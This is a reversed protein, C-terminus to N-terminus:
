FCRRSRYYGCDKSRWFYTCPHSRKFESGFSGRQGSYRYCKKSRFFTSRYDKPHKPHKNKTPASQVLTNEKTKVPDPRLGILRIIMLIVFVVIAILPYILVSSRESKYGKIFIPIAIMIYVLQFLELFWLKWSRKPSLYKQYKNHFYHPNYQHEKWEEIEQWERSFNQSFHPSYQKNKNFQYRDM